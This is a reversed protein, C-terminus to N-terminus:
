FLAFTGINNDEKGDGITVLASELQTSFEECANQLGIQWLELIRHRFRGDLANLIRLAEGPKTQASSIWKRVSSKISWVDKVNQLQDLWPQFSKEMNSISAVLWEDLKTTLNVQSIMSSSSGLDVYPKYTKLNPPLLQLQIPSPLIALVSPTSLCLEPPLAVSGSSNDNDPQMFKLLNHMMSSTSGESDFMDRALKVTHVVILLVTQMAERVEQVPSTQSPIAFSIFSSNSHPHARGNASIGSPKHQGFEHSLAKALTKSRQNLLALFAETMPRSDLLHLTALAACAEQMCNVFCTLSSYSHSVEPSIDFERLSLTAKHIIQPRFQSVVDWQRQILPFESQREAITVREKSDIFIQSVPVDIGQGRWVGEEQENDRVLARHVVRVLLFLWTASFYKKREILRWLNEPADILLKVHAALQQLTHLHADVVPNLHDFSILFPM